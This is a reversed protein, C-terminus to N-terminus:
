IWTSSTRQKGAMNPKEANRLYPLYIPNISKTTVSTLAIPQGSEAAAGCNDRQDQSGQVVHLVIYELSQLRHVPQDAIDSSFFDNTYLPVIISTTLVSVLPYHICLLLNRYQTWLGSGVNKWPDEEPLVTRVQTTHRRLKWRRKWWRSWWMTTVTLTRIVTFKM